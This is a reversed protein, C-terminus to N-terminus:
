PYGPFQVLHYMNGSGNLNLSAPNVIASNFNTPVMFINSKNKHSYIMNIFVLVILVILLIFLIKFITYKYKIWRKNWKNKRMVRHKEWYIDEENSEKKDFTNSTGIIESTNIISKVKSRCISCDKIHEIMNDNEHILHNINDKNIISAPNIISSNFTSKDNDNNKAPNIISHSLYGRSIGKSYDTGVRELSMSNFTSKDNDNDNNKAPITHPKIYSTNKLKPLVKPEVSITNNTFNNYINKSHGWADDLSSYQIM